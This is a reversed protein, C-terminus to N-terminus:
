LFYKRFYHFKRSKELTTASVVIILITKHVVCIISNGYNKRFKDTDDNDNVPGGNGNEAHNDDNSDDKEKDDNDNDYFNGDDDDNDKHIITDIGEDDSTTHLRADDADGKADDDYKHVRIVLNYVPLKM